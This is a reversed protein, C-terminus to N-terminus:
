ARLLFSFRLERRVEELLRPIWVRWHDSVLKQPLHTLRPSVTTSFDYQGFLSVLYENVKDKQLRYAYIFDWTWAM